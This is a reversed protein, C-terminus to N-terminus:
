NPFLYTHSLWHVLMVLITTLVNMTLVMTTIGILIGVKTTSKLMM